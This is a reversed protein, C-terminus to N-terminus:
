RTRPQQQGTQATRKGRKSTTICLQQEHKGTERALPLLREFGKAIAPHAFGTAADAVPGWVRRVADATYGARTLDARLAAVLAADTPATHSVGGNLGAGDAHASSPSRIGPVGSSDPPEFSRLRLSVGSPATMSRVPVSRVM